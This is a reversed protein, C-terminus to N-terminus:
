LGARNMIDLFQSENVGDAEKAAEEIMEVLDQETVSIGLETAVRRLDEVRIEGRGTTDFLKFIRFVDAERHDREDPTMITIFDALTFMWDDESNGSGSRASSDSNKSHYHSDMESDDGGENDSDSSADVYKSRGTSTRSNTAGARTSRRRAPEKENPHGNKKAKSSGASASTAKKSPKSQHISLSPMALVIERVEKLTAEFGLTRMAQRLQKLTLQENEDPDFVRFTDVLEQYYTQSAHASTTSTVTATTTTARPDNSAQYKSM